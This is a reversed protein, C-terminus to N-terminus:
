THRANIYIYFISLYIQTHTHIRLLVWGHLRCLCGSSGSLKIQKSLREYPGMFIVGIGISHLLTRQRPMSYSLLLLGPDDNDPPCHFHLYRRCCCCRRRFCCCRCRCFVSYFLFFGLPQLYTFVVSYCVVNHHPIITILSQLIISIHQISYSCQVCLLIYIHVYEHTYSTSVTLVTTGNQSHIFEFGNPGTGNATQHVRIHM